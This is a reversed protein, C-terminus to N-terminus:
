PLSCVRRRFAEWQRAAEFNFACGFDPIRRPDRGGKAHAISVPCVLCFSFYRCDRCRRYSSRKDEKALFIETWGLRASLASLAGGAARGRRATLRKGLSRSRVNGLRAARVAGRLLASRPRRYSGVLTVCASVEGGVDVALNECRVIGCMSMSLGPVWAFRLGLPNGGDDRGRLMLVPIKGTRRYHALSARSVRAFQRRMEFERSPRWESCDTLSPALALREVGKGLFYEVSDAMSAVTGPTVTMSVKVRRRFFGRHRQSLATLLGDLRDFTGVGRVDQAESLGDFSLQVEFRNQKLFRIKNEDLLTGNTLLVFRPRRGAPATERVHAAAREIMSFRLLPEGGSFVLKVGPRGHSLGLDLAARLTAWNMNSRRGSAAYCYECSLNCDTTLVLTLASIM